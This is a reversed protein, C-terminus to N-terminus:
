EFHLPLALRITTGGGPTPLFSLGYQHGYILHLRKQINLLAIGMHETHTNSSHIDLDALNQNLAAQTQLNIGVGNDAILIELLGENARVHIAILGGSKRQELGHVVANEVLPQITLRLVQAKLLKEPVDIEYRFRDQFRYTQIKIYSEILNLEESLAVTGNWDYLSYRFMHALSETVEVVDTTAGKRGLSKLISLTNFLFHPNIQAQLALLRADKERLEAVYVRSIMDQLSDLMQNFVKGLQGIENRNNTHLARITFDGREVHRMNTIMRRLPRTIGTAIFWAIVIVLVLILSEIIMVTNRIEKLRSTISNMPKLILTTWHTSESRYSGYLYSKGQWTLTGSAKNGTLDAVHIGDMVKGTWQDQSDYIVNGQDTLIFLSSDQEEGYERYSVLDKMVNVDMDLKMYGIKKGTPIQNIQRILSFVKVGQFNTITYETMTPWLLYPSQTYTLIYPYWPEEAISNGVFPSRKAWYYTAAPNDTPYLYIGQVSPWSVSINLLHSTIQQNLSENEAETTENSHSLVNQVLSDYFVSLSLKEMDDIYLEETRTIQTSNTDLLQLTQKKLEGVSSHYYFIGSSIVSLAFLFSFSLVVKTKLDWEKWLKM